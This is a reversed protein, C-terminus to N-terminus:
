SLLIGANILTTRIYEESQKTSVEIVIPKNRVNNILDTMEKVTYGTLTRLLKVAKISDKRKDINVIRLTIPTSM